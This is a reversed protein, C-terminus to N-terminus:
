RLTPSLSSFPAVASWSAAEAPDLPTPQGATVVLLAAVTMIGALASACALGAAFISSRNM